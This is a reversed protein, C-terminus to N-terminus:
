SLAPMMSNASPNASRPQLQNRRAAGGRELIGAELDDVRRVDGAERGDEPVPHHREVGLHVAADEGFRVSGAWRASRSAWPM